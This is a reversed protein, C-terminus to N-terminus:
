SRPTSYRASLEIVVLGDELGVALRNPQIAALARVPVGLTLCQLTDGTAPDWIRVTGDHGGTALLGDREAHSLAIVANVSSTHGSLTRVIDGTEPDWIRVTRDVSGTALLAGVNSGFVIAASKVSGSHGTLTYIPSSGAAPDWLRVTGDLSATVLRPGGTRSTFDTIANVADDHAALPIGVETGTTPDWFRVTRDSGGTALLVRGRQDTFATIANVGGTHGTLAPSTQRDAGLNWIRATGDYGASALFVTGQRDTFATIALVGNSHGTLANGVQRGTAADWVRVMAHGCSALLTRGGPASVATLANVGQTHDALPNGMNVTTNPDWIRITNDNGGTALLDRREPGTFSVIAEIGYVHGVLPAGVQEGTMADWLRISGDSHATALAMRGNQMTYGTMRTVSPGTKALKAIHKGSALDWVEIKNASDCAAILARHSRPIATIAKVAHGGRRLPLGVRVQTAPDWIRVWGDADGVALLNQGDASKVAAVTSQGDALEHIPAGLTTGSAPDWIRVMGDGGGIALLLRGDPDSFAALSPVGLTEKSNMEVEGLTSGTALESVLAIRKSINTTAVLVRDVPGSPAAVPALLTYYEFARGAIPGTVPAGTVPDWRRVTGDHSSSALVISGNPDTFSVVDILRNSHGILQLHTSQRRVEAWVVSWSPAAGHEQPLLRSSSHRAVALRRLGTRDAPPATSLQHNVGIVAAIEIPLPLRGFATRMADVTVAAPNLRDLVRPHGALLQWAQQGAAGAHASLYTALYANLDVHPATDIHNVVETILRQTIALHRDQQTTRSNRNNVFYEAFTRHALRYVTQGHELDLVLYPAATTLLTSIDNNTVQKKEEADGGTLVTAIAAWIGEHVPLGRGHALALAELLPRAARHQRELRQVAHGFLDRHHGQSLAILVRLGSVTLLDPSALLEHVALRAFLFEGDAASIVEAAAAIVGASAAIHGAEAAATLRKSVYRGIADPDRPIDVFEQTPGGLADLLDTDAPDPDDPGERTSRRTGVIVRAARIAALPQLVAQAITVPDVAEDLADVLVTTPAERQRLGDLLTRLQASLPADADPLPVGLSTALRQTLDTTTLGTLHVTATFVDDPPQEDDALTATLGANILARRLHPRSHIILNGLLASKGAGARGTVVLMGETHTRLWAVIERRQTARGEFYWALEGLEGGQAKPVFHRQEDDPLQALAHQVKRAVDLTSGAPIPLERRKLAVDAVNKPIVQSHEPLRLKLERALQWLNVQDEAGFTDRLARGLAHSFRGLTTSGTGSVGILLLRRRGQRDDLARNLLEVFRASRCTDIIIMAWADPDDETSERATIRYALLDPTIGELEVPDPSGSHALSAHTQNSWGHGVWYLVSDGIATEAWTNIRGIVAPLDRDIMPADWAVVDAGFGALLTAVAGVEAEVDLNGHHRYTGIAVPFIELRRPSSSTM